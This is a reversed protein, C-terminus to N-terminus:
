RAMEAPIREATIAERKAECINIVVRIRNAIHMYRKIDAQRPLGGCRASNLEENVRELNITHDVDYCPIFRICDYCAIPAYQCIHNRGCEGTTERRRHDVSPSVIRKAPDIADTVSVFQKIVPFHELFAPMLSDSLEDIAGSFILDVYVSATASTAHLLVAAITTASCGAIALQTGITHRMVNHNIRAGTLKKLPATYYSSVEAGKGIM